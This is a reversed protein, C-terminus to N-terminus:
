ETEGPAAPVIFAAVPTISQFAAKKPMAVIVAWAEPRQPVVRAFLTTVILGEVPGVINLEPDTVRQWSEGFSNYVAEASLLVDTVYETNGAAAPVMLAALPNISQSGANEPIAVIVAVEVPSQPVVLALLATVTLAVVPAVLKVV